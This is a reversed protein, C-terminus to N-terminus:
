HDGRNVSVSDFQPHFRDFPGHSQALLALSSYALAHNAHVWIIGFAMAMAKAKGRSKERQAM